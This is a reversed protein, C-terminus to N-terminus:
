AESDHDAHRAPLSHLRGQRKGGAGMPLTSPAYAHYQCAPAARVSHASLTLAYSTCTIGAIHRCKHIRQWDALVATLALCSLHLMGSKPDAARDWAATHVGQHKDQAEACVGNRWAATELGSVQCGGERSGACISCQAAHGVAHSRLRGACASAASVCCAALNSAM